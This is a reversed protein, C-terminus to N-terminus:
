DLQKSLQKLENMKWASIGFMQLKGKDGLVTLSCHKPKQVTPQVISAIQPADTQFRPLGNHADQANILASFLLYHLSLQSAADCKM